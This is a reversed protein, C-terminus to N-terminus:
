FKYLFLILYSVSAVVTGLSASEAEAQTRNLERIVHDDTIPTHAPHHSM